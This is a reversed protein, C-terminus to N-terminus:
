PVNVSSDTTPVTPAVTETPAVTSDITTPSTTGSTTAVAPAAVPMQKKAYQVFYEFDAGGRLKLFGNSAPYFRVSDWVERLVIPNEGLRFQPALSFIEISGDGGAKFTNTLRVALDLQATSNTPRPKMKVYVEKSQGPLLDFPESPLVDFNVKPEFYTPLRLYVEDDAYTSM